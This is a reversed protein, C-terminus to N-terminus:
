DNSIIQKVKPKFAKSVAGSGAFMDCFISNELPKTNHKKLTSEISQQLFSLLKLKSGIYNM